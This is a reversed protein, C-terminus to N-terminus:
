MWTIHRKRTRHTKKSKKKKKLCFVAYSIKVHSSNLRTSKRDERAARGDPDARLRRLDAPRGARPRDARAPVRAGGAVLRPLAGGDDRDGPPGDRSPRRGPATPDTQQRAARRPGPVPRRRLSRRPPPQPVRRRRREARRRFPAHRRAV